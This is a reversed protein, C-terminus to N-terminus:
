SAVVAEHEGGGNGDMPVPPEATVAVPELGPLMSRLATVGAGYASGEARALRSYTLRFHARLTPQLRPRVQAELDARAEPGLEGLYGGLVVEPIDHINVANAIGIAMFKVLQAVPPEHLYRAGPGLLLRAVAPLEAAGPREILGLAAAVAALARGSAYEELCGFNGCVCRRGDPVVTTHGILGSNGFASVVLEGAHVVRTGVGWGVDFFLFDTLHRAEGIAMEAVTLTDIHTTLTVPAAYRSEFLRRVQVRQWRPMRPTALSLGLRYDLFGTLAVALAAPRRGAPLGRRVVDDLMAYLRSLTADTDLDTPIVGSAFARMQGTLDMVAASVNPIEVALGAVYDRSAVFEHIAPPRGGTSDGVGAQRAYGETELEALWKQVTPHSLGTSRALADASARLQRRLENFVRQKNALGVDRGTPTQM